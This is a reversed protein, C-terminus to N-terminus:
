EIGVFISKEDRLRFYSSLRQGKETISYETKAGLSKNERILDLKVLFNFYEIPSVLNHDTKHIIQKQTLSDWNDLIKIIAIYKEM